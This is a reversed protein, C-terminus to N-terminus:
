FVNMTLDSLYNTHYLQTIVNHTSFYFLWVHSEPSQNKEHELVAGPLLELLPSGPINPPM